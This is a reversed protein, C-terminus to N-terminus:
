WIATSSYQLTSMEGYVQKLNGHKQGGSEEPYALRSSMSLIILASSPSPVCKAHRSIDLTLEISLNLNGLIYSLIIAGVQAQLSHLTHRCLELPLYCFPLFDSM